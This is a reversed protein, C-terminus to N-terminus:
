TNRTLIETSVQTSLILTKDSGTHKVHHPPSLTDSLTSQKIGGDHCRYQIVKIVAYMCSIKLNKSDEPLILSCVHSLQIGKLHSVQGISKDPVLHFFFNM